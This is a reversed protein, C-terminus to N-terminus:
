PCRIPRERGPMLCRDFRAPPKGARILFRTYKGIRGAKRVFLELVIGARLRREFRPFRVIRATAAARAVSRAPCGRGYCRVLVRAGLPARVSLVRVLAGNELVVGAIRVVPFPRMRVLQTTNTTTTTPPPPAAGGAAPSGAAPEAPSGAPPEASPAGAGTVVVDRQASRSAGHSDIATLLVSYTGPAGYPHSPSTEGSIAGDGLSWALTVADGDPDSVVPTFLVDQGVVPALPSFSFDVAPAANVVLTKTVNTRKNDALTVRMRVTVPGADPFTHTVTPGIEEFDKVADLDWAVEADAPPDPAAKLTVPEGATPPDPTVSFDYDAASAPASGLALLIFVLVPATVGRAV